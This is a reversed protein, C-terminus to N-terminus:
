YHTKIIVGGSKFNHPKIAARTAMETIRQLRTIMIFALATAKARKDPKNTPNKAYHILWRTRKTWYDTINIREEFDM